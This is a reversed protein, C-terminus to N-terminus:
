RSDSIQFIVQFKGASKWTVYMAFSVKTWASFDEERESTSVEGEGPAAVGDQNYQINTILTTAEGVKFQTREECDSFEEESLVCYRNEIKFDEHYGIRNIKELSIVSEKEDM